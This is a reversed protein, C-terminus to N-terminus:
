LGHIPQPCTVKHWSDGVLVVRRYFCTKLVGEELPVISSQIRSKYLDGFTYGSKVVDKEYMAVLRERDDDTYRPINSGQTKKENKFFLIWFMTDNPGRAVLYSRGKQDTKFAQDQQMDLTTNSVGFM